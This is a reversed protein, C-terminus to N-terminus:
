KRIKWESELGSLQDELVLVTIARAMGIPKLQLNSPYKEAGANSSRKMSM